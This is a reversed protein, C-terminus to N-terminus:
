LDHYIITPSLIALYKPYSNTIIVTRDSMTIIKSDEIIWLYNRQNPQDYSWSWAQSSCRAGLARSATSKVLMMVWKFYDLHIIMKKRTTWQRWSSECHVKNWFSMMQCPIMTRRKRIMHPLKNMPSLSSITPANGAHHCQPCQQHIRRQQQHASCMLPTM